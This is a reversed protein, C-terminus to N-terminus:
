HLEGLSLSKVEGAVVGAMALLWLFWAARGGIVYKAPKSLLRLLDTPNM